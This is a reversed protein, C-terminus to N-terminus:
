QFKHKLTTEDRAKLDMNLVHAPFTTNRIEIRYKGPELKLVKRPPSVGQSKGNVFIEGWPDIALFITAPIVGAKGPEGKDAPKSGDITKGDAKNAPSKTADKPDFAPAAAPIQAPAPAPL